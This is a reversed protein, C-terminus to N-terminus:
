IDKQMALMEAFALIRNDITGPNEADEVGFELCLTKIDASKLVNEIYPMEFYEYECFKEGMFIVGKVGREHVMNNIFDVRRDGAPLMTTCPYHNFYFDRYYRVPDDTIEPSYWYSRGLNAVDNAVIKLGSAEMTKVLSQRPIRIGSIMIPIAPGDCPRKQPLSSLEKELIDIHDEVAMHHAMMLVASCSHFSIRGERAADELGRSLERQKRYLGISAIFNSASFSNGTFTELDRVLGAIRHDLYSQAGSREAPIAPVHFRIIRKMIGKDHLGKEIIEPLNRLTDCANYMLIADLLESADGLVFDVLCRAVGCTFNQLHRDGERLGGAKPGMGWLTIPALGFSHLLELPPYLPFCGVARKGGSKLASLRSLLENMTDAGMGPFAVDISLDSFGWDSSM